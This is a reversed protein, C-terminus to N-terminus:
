GHFYAGDATVKAAALALMHAADMRDADTPNAAVFNVCEGKYTWAYYQGDKGWLQFVTTHGSRIFLHGTLAAVKPPFDQRRLTAYGKFAGDKVAKVQEAPAAAIVELARDIVETTHGYRAAHAREYAYRVWVPTAAIYRECLAFAAAYSVDSISVLVDRGEISALRALVDGTPTDIIHWASGEGLATPLPKFTVAPMIIGGGIDAKPTYTTHWEWAAQLRDTYTACPFTHVTRTMATETTETTEIATPVTTVVAETTEPQAAAAEAEAELKEARRKACIMDFYGWFDVGMADLIIDFGEDSLCDADEVRYGIAAKIEPYLIPDVSVVFASYHYMKGTVVCVDYWEPLQWKNRDIVKGTYYAIQAPTMTKRTSPQTRIATM